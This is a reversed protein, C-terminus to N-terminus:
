DTNRLKLPIGADRVIEAMAELRSLPYPHEAFGKDLTNGPVYGALVYLETGKVLTCIKRIDDEDVIGPVVTTRFEHSIGSAKIIEVSSIIKEQLIKGAGEEGPLLLGYKEPSTKIDMAIYDPKIELIKEPFTGNTDLKILYGMKRIESVLDGLDGHVLPEGGSICVGEIVNKRKELYSLVSDINELDDARNLVLEPNHCYPCRLNCGPLFIVSAVRGPYNILTTKIFGARTIM